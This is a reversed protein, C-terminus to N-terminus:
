AGQRPAPQELIRIARDLCQQVSVSREQTRMTGVAARLALKIQENHSALPAMALSAEAAKMRTQEVCEQVDFMTGACSILADEFPKYSATRSTVSLREFLAKHGDYIADRAAKNGAMRMIEASLKIGLTLNSTLAADSQLEPNISNLLAKMSNTLTSEAVLKSSLNESSLDIDMEDSANLLEEIIPKTIACVSAFLDQNRRVEVFDGLSALAYQRYVPNKRNSERFVIAQIQNAVKEDRMLNSNDKIFRVLAHLIKEKKAWTKGDLAKELALWIMKSNYDNINSGSSTAADAISLACTHKVAWRPCELHKTALFLIEELYLLVARSGGVSENWTDEFFAKADASVDHKAIFVFPVIKSAISNFRDNAHKSIAYVVDGSIKRSRDDESEFYLQQCHQVLNLLEQESALRALYGCSVAFASSVTDNRDLVQKRALRLFRNAYNKFVYNHRTSLSVLVRTCGVKSPLGIAAKIANELSPALADMTLEDLLDLCRDIAEMMPSGRVNSLRVDDIQETSIDYRHANLRIYNVVDPEFSSLLGLLHNVLDPIFPRLTKSDSSKIIELLTSLAYAQIDRASSELGSPSLLFPMVKKLMSNASGHQTDTAKLSRTLIGTLVKALKM